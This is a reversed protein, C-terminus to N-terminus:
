PILAHKKRIHARVDTFIRDIFIASGISWYGGDYNAHDSAFVTKRFGAMANIGIYTLFHFHRIEPIKFNFSIGAGAPVFVSHGRGTATTEGDFKSSDVTIKGYGAEFVLSMEVLERRFIFPEYYLTGFGIKKELTLSGANKADPRSAFQQDMYYGGIGTKFRDNVFIGIRYGWINVLENNIYSFRQDFDTTPKISWGHHAAQLPLPLTDQASSHTTISILLILTAITRM